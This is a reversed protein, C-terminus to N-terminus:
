GVKKCAVARAHALCNDVKTLSCKAIFPFEVVFDPEIDDRCLNVLERAKQEVVTSEMIADTLFGFREFTLNYVSTM